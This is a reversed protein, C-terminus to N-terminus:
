NTLCDERWCCDHQDCFTSQTKFCATFGEKIQIAKILDFKKKGFSNLGLMKAKTRVENMKM